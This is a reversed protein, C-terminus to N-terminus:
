NELHICLFPHKFLKYMTKETIYTDPNKDQKHVCSMYVFPQLINYVVVFKCQALNILSPM